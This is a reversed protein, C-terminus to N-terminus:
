IPALRRYPALDMKIKNNIPLNSFSIVEQGALTKSNLGIRDSRKYAEAAVEIVSQELDYPVTGYTLLVAQGIDSANFTYVGNAVSYQGVAPNSPVATMAAGTAYSVGADTVWTQLATVSAAVVQPENAVQFGAWYSVQIQQKGYPFFVDTLIVRASMGVADLLYGGTPPNGTAQATIVNGLFSISAVGTVPGYRLAIADGGRGDYRETVLTSGIFPRALYRMVSVSAGSVLRALVIDNNTTTAGLWAKLNALSTLDGQAM